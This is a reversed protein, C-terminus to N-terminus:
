QKTLNYYYDLTDGVVAEIKFNVGNYSYLYTGSLHVKSLSATSSYTKDAFQVYTPDMSFDGFSGAHVTATDGTVKYGTKLDMTLTLNAKVTDYKKTAPSYHIKMFPGAFTGTPANFSVDADNSHKLCGAGLMVIFPLFFIIARKM